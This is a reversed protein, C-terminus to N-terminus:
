SEGNPEINNKINLHNKKIIKMLEDRISVYAKHDNYNIQINLTKQTRDWFRVQAAFGEPIIILQELEDNESVNKDNLKDDFEFKSLEAPCFPCHKIEVSIDEDICNPDFLNLHFSVQKTIPDYGKSILCRMVFEKFWKCCFGKFSYNKLWDPQNDNYMM